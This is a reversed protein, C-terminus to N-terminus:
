RWVAWGLFCRRRPAPVGCRQRFGATWALMFLYYGPPHPEAYSILGVLTDRVTLRAEPIAMGEPLHIGPVSIEIHTM